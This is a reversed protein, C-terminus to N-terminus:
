VMSPILGIKILMARSGGAYQNGCGFTKSIWNITDKRTYKQIKLQDLIRLITRDYSKVEGPLPYVSIRKKTKKKM